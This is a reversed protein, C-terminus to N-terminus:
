VGEERDRVQHGELEEEHQDMSRLIGSILPKIPCAALIRSSKLWTSQVAVVWYRLTNKGDHAVAFVPGGSMGAIDTLSIDRGDASGIPLPVRAYFREAAVEKM